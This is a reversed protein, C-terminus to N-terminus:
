VYEETLININYTECLSQALKLDLTDITKKIELEQKLTLRKGENIFDVVKQCQEFIYGITSDSHIWFTSPTRYEVGYPKPRYLGAKGYLEKRETDKDLFLLPLGVFLDMLKIVQDRQDETPDEWGIHIHGGAWRKNEEPNPTKAVKKTYINFAPDCGFVRAQENDLEEDSFEATVKSSITLNDEINEVVWHKCYNINEIFEEKTKSPKVTFEVMVNDTLVGSDNGIPYNIYKDGPIIGIASVEKGTEKDLLFLEPDAGITVNNIM